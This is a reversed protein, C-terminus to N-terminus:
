KRLDALMRKAIVRAQTAPEDDGLPETETGLKHHSVTLLPKSADRVWWRFSVGGVVVSADLIITSTFM